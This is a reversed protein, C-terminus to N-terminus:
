YFFKFFNSGLNQLKYDNHISNLLNYLYVKTGYIELSETLWSIYSNEPHSKKKLINLKKLIM